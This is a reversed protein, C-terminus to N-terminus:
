KKTKKEQSLDKIRINRFKVGAGHGLFGIHGSKNFLGPHNRHDVTYPNSKAGDPAVNHGQCAERINGDVIVEGNVTVTIHDGVARIEETSWEGRAPHKIRKAPIIGYVSGHVQHSKLNKYIPADHDLVQIEMGHYAADVGMPTRIGVGNNVGEKEFCFEFRFVFDSYEDVTYLNGGSGYAASVYINGDVPIYDTTNGTFNHMSRGDFLVKFGDAAEEASLKFIPTSPLERVYVDRFEIPKGCSSLQILGTADVPQAEDYPNVMTKNDILTVGNEVVTIRDNLVKVYTTNWEGEPNVASKCKKDECKACGLKVAPVSRVGLGGNGKWEFMMEFNEYPKDFAVVSPVNGKYAITGDNVTWNKFSEAAEAKAKKMAAAKVAKNGAPNLAKGTTPDITVPTLAVDGAITEYAAEPLKALMGNIDDVAYGDDASTGAKFVDRTKELAQRVPAGGFGGNNKSAITRVTNAAAKATAKDSLYKDAIVLAQYTNTGALGKLMVNKVKKDTAAELGKRYLQYKRVPTYDSGNVLNAYRSMAMAERSKDGVAIGYMVDIMEPSNVNLLAAFAMNKAAGTGNNFGKLLAAVAEPTAAQALVMYYQYPVKSKNIYPMVKAYQEAKSLNRVSSQLANVLAQNSNAGNKEVLQCVADFDDPGVVGALAAYAADKVNANDSNLLAFVKPAAETMKRSSALKMAAIQSDANGDLAKIVGPNIKGNFALLAAEAASTKAGGLQAVLADLAKEGGIKGAAKIAATAVEQNPSNINALVVDIQDAAHNAGYWNIIDAKVLNDGKATVFKNLAAYVDADAWAEARRLANVRYARDNDKMAQVLMPLAKKGDAEFILNLAAGRVHAKDTAKILNKAAASAQKAEGNAVMNELLAIYAETAANPEWSYKQAKAAKALVPMSKSSGIQGLAKYYARADADNAEAAWKLIVPEAAKLGKKGAAYTLVERPAAEANVLEMLTEETGPLGILGNIAWEQLYSDKVYKAFFSADDATGCNQLLTMLFARNPNDTCKDISAKLGERVADRQAEHGPAMVYSTLGYLAYEVTSNKGKDAPVLMGALQVVGETGTSALDAMASNYNKQKKGPLQALADAVITSTVRGRADQAMVAWPMTM